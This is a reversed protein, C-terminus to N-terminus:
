RAGDIVLFNQLRVLRFRLHKSALMIARQLNNYPTTDHQSSKRCHPRIEELSQHDTTTTARGRLSHAFDMVGPNGHLTLSYYPTSSAHLATAPSHPIPPLSLSGPVAFLCVMAQPSCTTVTGYTPSHPPPCRCRGIWRERGGGSRTLHSWGNGINIAFCGQQKPGTRQSLSSLAGNRDFEPSKECVCRLGEARSLLQSGRVPGFPFRRGGGGGICVKGTM